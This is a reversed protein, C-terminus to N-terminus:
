RIGFWGLVTLVFTVLPLMGVGLVCVLALSCPTTRRKGLLSRLREVGPLLVRAARLAADPAV